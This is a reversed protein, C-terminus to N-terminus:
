GDIAEWNPIVHSRKISRCNVLKSTAEASAVIPHGLANVTYTWGHRQLWNCQAKPRKLGTLQQIDSNSLFTSNVMRGRWLTLKISARVGNEEM